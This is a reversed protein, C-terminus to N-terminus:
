IQPLPDLSLSCICYAIAGVGFPADLFAVFFAPLL